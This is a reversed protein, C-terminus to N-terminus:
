CPPMATRCACSCATATTSSRTCGNRAPRLRPRWPPWSPRCSRWPARAGSRGRRARWRPDNHRNSRWVREPAAAIEGMTRGSLVSRDDKARAGGADTSAEEDAEKILLWLDQKDRAKGRMRVLTWGGRLREGHLRFKLKGAAYDVAPDGLPEWSGRDWLMVTGGGYEGKPITGEFGGYDLPHDEVHVALRREAPDLSPGQPVAWSKLTGDLELRLDYHLRRAAHKHM